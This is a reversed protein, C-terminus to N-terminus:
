ALAMTYRYVICVRDAGRAGDLTCVLHPSCFALWQLRGYGFIENANVMMYYLISSLIGTYHM